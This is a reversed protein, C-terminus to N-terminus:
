RAADFRRDPARPRASRPCNVAPNHACRRREGSVAVALVDGGIPRRPLWQHVINQTGM